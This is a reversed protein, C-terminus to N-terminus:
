KFGRLANKTEQENGDDLDRRYISTQKGDKRTIVYSLADEWGGDIPKVQILDAPNYGVEQFLRRILGELEAQTRV